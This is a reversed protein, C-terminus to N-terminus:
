PFYREDIDIGGEALLRRLEDKFTEKAHHEQQKIIYKILTDKEKLSYTLAAYGSAWGEFKPFNRNHKLWFSSSTKIDRMFFSFGSSIM